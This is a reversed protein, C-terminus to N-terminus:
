DDWKPQRANHEKAIERATCYIKGLVGGTAAGALPQGVLMGAIAGTAIGSALPHECFAQASRTCLQHRHERSQSTRSCRSLAAFDLALM